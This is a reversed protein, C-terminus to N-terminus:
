RDFAQVRPRDFFSFHKRAFYDKNFYADPVWDLLRELM